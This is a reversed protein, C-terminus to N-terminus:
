TKLNERKSALSEESKAESGGEGPMEVAADEGLVVRKL